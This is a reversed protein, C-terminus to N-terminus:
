RSRRPSLVTALLRLFCLENSWLYKGFLRANALLKCPLGAM